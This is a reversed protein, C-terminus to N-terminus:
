LFFGLFGVWLLMRRICERGDIDWAKFFCSGIWAKGIEEVPLIETPPDIHIGRGFGPRDILFAEEDAGAM